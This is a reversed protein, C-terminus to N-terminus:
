QMVLKKESLKRGAKRFVLIYLGPELASGDIDITTGEVTPILSRRLGRMDLIEICDIQASGPLQVSFTGRSPNPYVSLNDFNYETSTVAAATFTRVESWDSEVDTSVAKVRIYYTLGPSLEQLVYQAEQWDVIRILDDSFDEKLSIEIVYSYNVQYNWELVATTIDENDIIVVEPALAVVSFTGVTWASSDGDSVSMVRWYYPLPSSLAASVPFKSELTRDSILLSAIDFDPSGSLQVYSEVNDEANLWQLINGSSPVIAGAAPTVLLPPSVYHNVLILDFTEQSATILSSIEALVHWRLKVTDGRKFSMADMLSIIDPMSLTLVTDAGASGSQWIKLPLTDNDTVQEALVTYRSTSSSRAWTFALSETEHDIRAIHGSSPSLLKFPEPPVPNVQADIWAVRNSMWSKLYSIENEYSGTVVANPWVYTDLIPWKMFNLEQSIALNDAKTDIIDFIAQELEEKRNNWFDDVGKRFVSDKLLQGFWAAKRIWWGEPNDNGNYNINGASIDFDWLPGMKLKENREKYLFVSSFFIADNNKLLENIWYWKIFSETDIYKAYGNVPDSLSDSFLVSEFENIYNRIYSFQKDTIDEPSKITFPVGESSYFWYTEDLRADVELLYGGTISDDDDDSESLETVNVRHEAVKIHEGLLYSGQYVGNIVLEVSQTRNNYSLGFEEGLAFALSTRLLTKDSYNALLVWDKDAPYGLVSAKSGLKLRYPKKPMSWTSNGRGKISTAADIDITGDGTIIKVRGTVYDDKSLIPANGDTQIYVVPLGSHVLSVTYTKAVVGGSYLSYTVPNSFDAASWQSEQRTLDVTASDAAGYAFTPILDIPDIGFPVVGIVASDGYIDCIISEQIKGQNEAVDFSFRLFEVTESSVQTKFYNAPSFLWDGDKEIGVRWYYKTLEELKDVLTWTTDTLQDEDVVLDDFNSSTSIQLAYPATQGSWRFTPRSAVSVAAQRPFMLTIGASEGETAEGNIGQVTVNDFRNNGVTGGTGVEFEIRLTFNPNDNVGATESFDLTTVEPAGDVPSITAFPFFSSGDTSYSVLQTGAGSGSRRTEYKIVIGSYGSTPINFNLVSGIPLNVRLHAGAPDGNLSNSGSFDQGTGSVLESDPAAEFTLSTGPLGATPSTLTAPTNFNWYAFYQSEQAFVPASVLLFILARLFDPGFRLFRDM